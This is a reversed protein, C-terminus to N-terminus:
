ARANFLVAFNCFVKIIRIDVSNFNVNRAGVDLVGIPPRGVKITDEKGALLFKSEANYNKILHDIFEQEDNFQGSLVADHLIKEIEDKAIFKYLKVFITIKVIIHVKYPM